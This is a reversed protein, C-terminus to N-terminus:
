SETPCADNHLCNYLCMGTESTTFRVLRLGGGRRRNTKRTQKDESNTWLHTPFRELISPSMSPTLRAEPFEKLFTELREMNVMMVKPSRMFKLLKETMAQEYGAKPPEM